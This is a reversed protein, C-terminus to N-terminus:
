LFRGGKEAGLRLLERFEQVLRLELVFGISELKSTLIKMMM